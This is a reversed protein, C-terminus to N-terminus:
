RSSKGLGPLGGKVAPGPSSSVRGKLREWSGNRPDTYASSKSKLKKVRRKADSNRKEATRFAYFVLNLERQARILRSIEDAAQRDGKDARTHLGYLYTISFGSRSIIESARTGISM